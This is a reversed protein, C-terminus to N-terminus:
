PRSDFLGPLLLAVPVVLVAVALVVFPGTEPALGVLRAAERAVPATEQELRPGAIGTAAIGIAATIAAVPGGGRLFRRVRTRDPM